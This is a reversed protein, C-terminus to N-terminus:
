PKVKGTINAIAGFIEQVTIIKSKALFEKYLAVKKLDFKDMLDIDISELLKATLTNGRSHSIMRPNNLEKKFQEVEEKPLMKELEEDTKEYVASQSDDYEKQLNLYSTAEKGEEDDILILHPGTGDDQNTYNERMFDINKSKDLKLLSYLKKTTEDSDTRLVSKFAVTQMSSINQIRM